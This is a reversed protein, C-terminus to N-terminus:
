VPKYCLLSYESYWSGLAFVGGIGAHVLFGTHVPYRTAFYYRGDGAHFEGSRMVWANVGAPLISDPADGAAHRAAMDSWDAMRFASGFLQQCRATTASAYPMTGPSLRFEPRSSESPASSESPSSGGQCALLALPFVVNAILTWWPVPGFTCAVRM